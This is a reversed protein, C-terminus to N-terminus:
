VSAQNSEVSSYFPRNFVAPRGIQRKLEYNVVNGGHRKMAQKLVGAVLFSSVPRLATGLLPLLLTQM